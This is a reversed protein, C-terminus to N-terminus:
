TMKILDQPPSKKISCFKLNPSTQAPDSPCKLTKHIEQVKGLNELLFDGARAAATLVIHINWWELWDVVAATLTM